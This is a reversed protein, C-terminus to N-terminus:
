DYSWMQNDITYAADKMTKLLQKKRKSDITTDAKVKKM